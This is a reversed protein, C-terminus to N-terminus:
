NQARVQSKGTLPACVMGAPPPAPPPAPTVNRLRGQQDREFGPTGSPVWQPVPMPGPKPKAPGLPQFKEENNRMSLPGAPILGAPGEKAPAM